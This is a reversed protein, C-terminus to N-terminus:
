EAVRDVAVSHYDLLQEQWIAVLEAGLPDGEFGSLAGCEAAAEMQELAGLGYEVPLKHFLPPLTIEIDFDALTQAQTKGTM